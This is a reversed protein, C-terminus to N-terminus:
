SAPLHVSRMHQNLNQLLPLRPALHTCLARCPPHTLEEVIQICSTELDELDANDVFIEAVVLIGSCRPGVM